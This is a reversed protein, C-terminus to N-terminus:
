YSFHVKITCGNNPATDIHVLGDHLKARKYIGTLGLGKVVSKQDFGKGDDSIKLYITHPEIQLDLDVFKAEAHKIINNLQEQIIRFITLVVQPPIQSFYQQGKISCNIQLKGTANLQEIIEILAPELDEAEMTASVLGHSLNRIEDIAQGLYSTTKQILAVPIERNPVEELLLKCTVLMQNVNDHLEQALKYREQEKAELVASVLQIRKEDEQRAWQQLLVQKEYIEEGLCVIGINNGLDDCLATCTWLLPRVEGGTSFISGEFRQIVENQGQIIKEFHKQFLQKSNNAEFYDTWNIGIIMTSPAALLQCGKRNIFLVKEDRDLLVVLSNVLNLFPTAQWFFDKHM